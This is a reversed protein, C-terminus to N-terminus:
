NKGQKRGTKLDCLQRGDWGFESYLENNRFHEIASRIYPITNQPLQDLPFWALDDCKDPEMNKPETSWTDVTFFFDMRIDDEKRHMIHVLRIDEPLLTVGVEEKIERYTGVTLSENEEIHGAPVSYKGDEYGTNFRRSLLIKKDKIFFVYGTAIMTFRQM